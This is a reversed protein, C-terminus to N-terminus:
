FRKVRSHCYPNKGNREYYDQHWEEGRWFHGAPEIKTAVDFGNKRLEAILNEVVQRQQEDM